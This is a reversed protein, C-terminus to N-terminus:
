LLYTLIVPLESSRIQYYHLLSLQYTVPIFYSRVTSAEKLVLLQSINGPQTISIYM